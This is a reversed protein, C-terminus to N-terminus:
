QWDQFGEVHFDFISLHGVVWGSEGLGIQTREVVEEVIKEKDSLMQVKVEVAEFKEMANVVEKM